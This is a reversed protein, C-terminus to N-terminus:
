GVEVQAELNLELTGRKGSAVPWSEAPAGFCAGLTSRVRFHFRTQGVTEADVSQSCESASGGCHKIGVLNEVSAQHTFSVSGWSFDAYSGGRVIDGM